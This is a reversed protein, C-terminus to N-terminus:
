IYIFILDVPRFWHSSAGKYFGCTCWEDHFNLTNLNKLKNQYRHEHPKNLWFAVLWSFFNTEESCERLRVRM